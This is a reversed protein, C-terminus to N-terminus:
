HAPNPHEVFMFLLWALFGITGASVVQVVVGRWWPERHSELAAAVAEGVAKATVATWAEARKEAMLELTVEHEKWAQRQAEEAAHHQTVSLALNQTSQQLKDLAQWIAAIQRTNENVVAAIQPHKPCETLEETAM